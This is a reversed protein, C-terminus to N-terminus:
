TKKLRPPILTMRQIKTLAKEASDEPLSMAEFPDQSGIATRGSAAEALERLLRQRYLAVDPSRKALKRVIELIEDLKDDSKRPPPASGGALAKAIEAELKPWFAEFLNALSEDPLERGGRAGVAKNISRLLRLTDDRTASTHQFESLPGKIDTPQVGILYTFLPPSQPSGQVAKALAGAEFHIWPAEVNERTLCVLGCAAGSLRADIENRWRSGKEIDTSSVFPDLSQIVTPLWTRLAEAVKKAAPRSWSVFIPTGQFQANTTM